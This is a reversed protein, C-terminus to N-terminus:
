TIRRADTMRLSACVESLAQIAKKRRTNHFPVYVGGWIGTVQEGYTDEIALGAEACDLVVPCTSCYQYILTAPKEPSIMDEGSDACSAETHWTQDIWEGSYPTKRRPQTSVRESVVM